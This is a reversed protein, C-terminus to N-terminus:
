VDICISGAKKMNDSEVVRAGHIVPAFKDSTSRRPTSTSSPSNLPQVINIMVHDPHIYEYLGRHMRTACITMAITLPSQFLLNMNDNLNLSLLVVPPVYALVAIFLWLVGQRYVLRWLSGNGRIRWIGIVMVILMLVDSVFTVVINLRNKDTGVFVCSMTEPDWFSEGHEIIGPICRTKTFEFHESCQYLAQKGYLLLAINTLVAATVFIVVLMKRNFIAIIRLGILISSFGMPFYAFVVLTHILANCDFESKLNFTVFQFIAFIFATLRFLPGDGSKGEPLSCSGILIYLRLSNGSLCQTSLKLLTKSFSSRTTGTLWPTSFVSSFGIPSLYSM